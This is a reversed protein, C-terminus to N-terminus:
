SGEPASSAGICTSAPSGPAEQLRRSHRDVWGALRAVAALIPMLDAGSFEVKEDLIHSLDRLPMGAEVAVQKRRLNLYAIRARVDSVHVVGTRMAVRPVPPPRRSSRIEAHRRYHHTRCLWTVALPKDYDEHHMIVEQTTGCVACPEAVIEGSARAQSCLQHALAKRHGVRCKESCYPVSHSRVVQLGLLGGCKRCLRRKYIRRGSEELVSIGTNIGTTNEHEALVMDTPSDM